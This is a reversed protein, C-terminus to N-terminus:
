SLAVKESYGYENLKRYLTKRDIGLMKATKDKAGHNDQLVKFIHHRVVDELLVGTELKPIASTRENEVPELVNEELLLDKITIEEGAALVVAREVTNELERVNGPWSYTLFYELIEKSFKRTPLSNAALYRKLFFEALPIIDELRERLPPVHIPIVNLRFYLDERFRHETVEQKLNRHTAALVRVHINRPKNEGIRKIQKEQLVRLLKAQLSLPLDGIEDLLLTGGEAEEFLGAKKDIAGTFSGKAYGFLEAELLTEPIAACNIAMFPGEKQHGWEHIYKAIVEKGTGSEGTILVNAASKSIRRALDLAIKVRPSRAILGEKLVTDKQKLAERLDTNEQLISKFKLARQVSVELQQLNLPKVIFDFAGAQIAEYANQISSNSTMLLIPLHLGWGRLQKILDLGSIGPLLLDTIIADASLDGKEAAELFDKPNCFFTMSYQRPGFYAKLLEQIDLDDEIVVIKTDACKTLTPSTQM